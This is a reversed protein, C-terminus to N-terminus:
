SWLSEDIREFVEVSELFEKEEDACWSGIFEDLADGVRNGPERREELGAGRRLLLVAARNLSIGREGALERLRRELEKDFGRISLQNM